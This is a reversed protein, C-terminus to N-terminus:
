IEVSSCVGDPPGMYWVHRGVDLLVSSRALVHADVNSSRSEHVFEVKTFSSRRAQIDRIVAGYPGLGEGQISRVVNARALGYGSM